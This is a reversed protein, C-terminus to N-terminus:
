SFYPGNNETTEELEEAPLIRIEVLTESNTVEGVTASIQFLLTEEVLDTSDTRFV